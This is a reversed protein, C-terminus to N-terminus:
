GGTEISSIVRAISTLEGEKEAGVETASPPPNSVVIGEVLRASLLPLVLLLLGLPILAIIQASAEEMIEVAAVAMTVAEEAEAEAEEGATGMTEAEAAAYLAKIAEQDLAEPM